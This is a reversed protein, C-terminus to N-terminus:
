GSGDDAGTLGEAMLEEVMQEWASVAQGGDGPEELDWRPRATRRRAQIGGNENSAQDEM